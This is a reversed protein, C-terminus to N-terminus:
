EPKPVITMVPMEAYRIIEHASSGIFYEVWNREQQTMIMILDVDNAKSYNLIVQALTKENPKGKVIEATCHINHTEIYRQVEKIQSEIKTFIKSDDTILASMVKITSNFIRAIEIAKAVKQTTQKSLDLPLLITNIGSNNSRSNISIVPCSAERIVRGTNAGIYRKKNGQSGNTGIVVFQASIAECVESIKTFIKGREVMTHVAVGSKDKLEKALKNLNGLITDYIIDNQDETFINAFFGAEEIVYLVTIDTKIIKSLVIAQDLAMTSQESFDVPVLINNFHKNM